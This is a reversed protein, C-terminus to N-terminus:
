RTEGPDDPGPRGRREGNRGMDALFPAIFDTIGQLDTVHRADGTLVHSIQGRWHVEGEQSTEEGWVKLVFVHRTREALDM